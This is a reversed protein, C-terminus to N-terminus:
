YFNGTFGDPCSILNHFLKIYKNTKGLENEKAQKLIRTRRSNIKSTKTKQSNTQKMWIKKIKPM